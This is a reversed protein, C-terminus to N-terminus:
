QKGRIRLWSRAWPVLVMWTLIVRHFTSDHTVVLALAIAGFFGCLWTTVEGVVIGVKTREKERVHINTRM